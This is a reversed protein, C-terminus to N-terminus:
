QRIQDSSAFRRVGVCETSTQKSGLYESLQTGLEWSVSGCLTFAAFMSHTENSICHRSTSAILWNVLLRSLLVSEDFGSHIMVDAIYQEVTSSLVFRPQYLVTCVM